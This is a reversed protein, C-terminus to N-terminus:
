IGGACPILSDKHSHNPYPIVPTPNGTVDAKENKILIEAAAKRKWITHSFLIKFNTEKNKKM